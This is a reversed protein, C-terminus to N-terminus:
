MEESRVTLSCAPLACPRVILMYKFLLMLSSECPLPNLFFSFDTQCAQTLGVEGKSVHQKLTRWQQLIFHVHVNQSPPSESHEVIKFNQRLGGTHSM